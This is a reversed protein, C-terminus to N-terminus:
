FFERSKPSRQAFGRVHLETMRCASLAAQGIHHPGYGEQRASIASCVIKAHQLSALCCQLAQFAALRPLDIFDNHQFPKGRTTSRPVRSSNFLDLVAAGRLPASRVLSPEFCCHRQDPSFASASRPKRSKQEDLSVHLRADDGVGDLASLVVIAM